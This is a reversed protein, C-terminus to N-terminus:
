EIRIGTRRVIDAWRPADAAIIAAFERPTTIRPEIGLRALSGAIEPSRLGENIAGNLREIVDDPTGKPAGIGWWGMAEYGPVTDNM